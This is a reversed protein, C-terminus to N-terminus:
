GLLEELGVLSGYSLLGVLFLGFRRQGAGDGLEDRFLGLLLIGSVFASLFAAVEASPTGLVADLALAALPASTLVYRGVNDFASRSEAALHTNTQLVHLALALAAVVASAPNAELSTPLSYVILFSYLWSVAIKVGFLHGPRGDLYSEIGYYIVFGALVVITIGTGFETESEEISPLLHLFIYAALAGAGIPTIVTFRGHIHERVWPSALHVGALLVAILGTWELAQTFDM